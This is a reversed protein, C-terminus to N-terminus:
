EEWLKEYYADTRHIVKCANGNSIYNKWAAYCEDVKARTTKGEKALKVLRRLKKREHKVTASQVIMIIKGTKTMRWTFGLYDFPESIPQIFTKKENLTLGLEGLWRRVEVLENELVAKDIHLSLTDDQYRQYHEIRLREKIYHDLPNLLGIGAIQVMQSGPNYGVDGTYQDRLVNCVRELVEGDVYRGFMKEVSEHRMSPYYGHIDTKLLWGNLGYKRYHRRMHEKWRKVAYDPGKGNQCACNDAILSRSIAPYLVNDNLSRQYVRDKYPISLGDRKKPYTILIPRPKGNVWTGNRLQSEMRLINELDNLVFSKVSPKWGVGLRCKQMSEYLADFCIPDITETMNM